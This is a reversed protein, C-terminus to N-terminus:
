THNTDIPKPFSPKLQDFIPRGGGGAGRGRVPSPLMHRVHLPSCLGRGRGRGSAPSPLMHRVHLRQLNLPRLLPRLLSRFRPRHPRLYQRLQQCGWNQPQAHLGVSRYQRKQRHKVNATILPLPFPHACQHDRLHRCPLVHHSTRLTRCSHLEKGVRTRSTHITASPTDRPRPLTFTGPM